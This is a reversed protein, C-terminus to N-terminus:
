GYPVGVDPLLGQVGFASADNGYPCHRLPLILKHYDPSQTFDFAGSLPDANADRDTLSRLGHLDEIFRLVSTFDYVTHDVAGGDPNDGSTTWPSIVLAPTRPGYGM